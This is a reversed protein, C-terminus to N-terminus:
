MVDIDEEKIRGIHYDVVKNQFRICGNCIKRVCCPYFICKEYGFNGYGLKILLDIMKM